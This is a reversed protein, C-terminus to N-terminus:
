HDLSTIADICYLLSTIADCLCLHRAHGRHKELRHTHRTHTGQQANTHEECIQMGLLPTPLSKLWTHPTRCSEYSYIGRVSFFGETSMHTRRTYNPTRHRADPIHLASALRQIRRCFEAHTPQAQLRLVITAPHTCNLMCQALM